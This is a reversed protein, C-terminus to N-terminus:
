KATFALLSYLAPPFFGCFKFSLTGLDLEEASNIITFGRETWPSGQHSLQYLIQRHHLLDPNLGQTPFIGQLLSCSGVGTNQGPSNWPSYLGHPQLSDSVFSLNESVERDQSSRLHSLPLSDAQWHLLCLLHPNSGQTLFVGQLLFHCVVGTNKGSFNYLCLLRLGRPQLSNSMVSRSLVIQIWLMIGKRIRVQKKWSQPTDFFLPSQFRTCAGM